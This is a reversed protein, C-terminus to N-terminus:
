FRVRWETKINNVIIWIISVNYGFKFHAIFVKKDDIDICWVLMIFYQGKYSVKYWIEYRDLVVPPQFQVKVDFSLAPPRGQRSVSYLFEIM